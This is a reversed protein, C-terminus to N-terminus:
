QPQPSLSASPHIPAQRGAGGVGHAAALACECIVQARRVVLTRTERKKLPQRGNQAGPGHRISLSPLPTTDIATEKVLGPFLCAGVREPEGRETRYCKKILELQTPDLPSGVQCVFSRYFGSGELAGGPSYSKHLMRSYVYSADLVAELEPAITPSPNILSFVHPMHERFLSLSMEPDLSDVAASFTQRRWVSAVLPERHFLQEHLKTLEQNADESNTVLLKNVIGDCLLQSMVHRLLSQVVIGLGPYDFGMQSLGVIFPSAAVNDVDQYLAEALPVLALHQFASPDTGPPPPPASRMHAALTDAAWRNIRRELSSSSNKITFDDVTSGGGGGASHVGIVTAGGSDGGELLMIHKRLAANQKEQELMATRQEEIRLHALKYNKLLRNYEEDGVLQQQQTASVSYSDQHNLINAMTPQQQRQSSSFTSPSYQFGPQPHYSM